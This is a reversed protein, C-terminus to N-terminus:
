VIQFDISASYCFRSPSKRIDQLFVVWFEVTFIVTIPVLCNNQYESLGTGSYTIFIDM